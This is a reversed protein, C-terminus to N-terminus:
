SLSEVQTCGWESGGSVGDVLAFRVGWTWSTIEAVEARAKDVVMLVVMDWVLLEGSGSGAGFFGVRMDLRRVVCGWGVIGPVSPGLSTHELGRIVNNDPCSSM